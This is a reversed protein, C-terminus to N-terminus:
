DRKTASRSKHRRATRSPPSSRPTPPNLHHALRPAQAAHPLRAAKILRAVSEFLFEPPIAEACHPCTIKPLKMDHSWIEIVEGSQQGEISKVYAKAVEVAPKGLSPDMNIGNMM